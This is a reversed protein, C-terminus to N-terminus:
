KGNAHDGGNLKAQQDLSLFSDMFKRYAHGAAMAKDINGPQNHAELTLDRWRQFLRESEALRDEVNSM